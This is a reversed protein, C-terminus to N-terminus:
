ISIIIARKVITSRFDTCGNIKCAESVNFNDGKNNNTYYDAYKRNKTSERTKSSLWM